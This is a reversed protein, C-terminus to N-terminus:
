PAPRPLVSSSRASRCSDPGKGAREVGIPRCHNVSSLWSGDNHYRRRYECRCCLVPTLPRVTAHGRRARGVGAQWQPIRVTHIPKSVTSHEPQAANPHGARWGLSRGGRPPRRVPPSILRFGQSPCDSRRAASLFRGSEPRSRSSFGHSASLYLRSGVLAVPRLKMSGFICCLCNSTWRRRSEIAAARNAAPGRWAKAHFRAGKRGRGCGNASREKRM